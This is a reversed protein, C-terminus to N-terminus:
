SRVEVAYGKNKMNSKVEGKLLAPQVVADFVVKLVNGSSDSNEGRKLQNSDEKFFEAIDSFSIVRRESM